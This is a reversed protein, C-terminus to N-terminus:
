KNGGFMINLLGLNQQVDQAIAGILNEDGKSLNEMEEILTLVKLCLEHMKKFNNESPILKSAESMYISSKLPELKHGLLCVEKLLDIQEDFNGLKDAFIHNGYFSDGKCNYHLDKAYHNIVMLLIILKDIQQRNM